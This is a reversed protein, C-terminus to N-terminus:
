GSKLSFGFNLTSYKDAKITKTAKKCITIKYVLVSLQLFIRAGQINKANITKRITGSEARAFLIINKSIRKAVFIIKLDIKKPVRTNCISTSKTQANLNESTLNNYSQTQLM